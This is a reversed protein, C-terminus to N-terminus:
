YFTLEAVFFFMLLGSILFALIYVGKDLVRAPTSRGVTILNSVM